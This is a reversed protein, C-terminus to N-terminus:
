SVKVSQSALDLIREQTMEAKQIEGTKYGEHMVIIRDSMGILEPMESSIMIITLGTETLQRMLRYIEQKAGVDIGRTPEDFILIKCQTALWKALVVKQQNGGSLNKVLQESSPAKIQLASMLKNVEAAAMKQNIWGAKAFRRLCSFVINSNVSLGLLAGHKKRDEPILGIGFRIAEEPSNIKVAKGFLEIRGGSIPDAGFLARATETRGAGVLGGLGLIEGQRLDFSMSKVYDNKLDCVRLITQGIPLKRPPFTSSLERGVMQRILEERNTESTQFTTIFQGDRMVTVRDSITFIEDLRHSIYLITVGKEKLRRIITFMSEIEPGTLPASPEDMVLLKVDRSISKAIEVIQQYAVTLDKVRASPDISVGLSDMIEAAQRNMTQRDIFIGNKLERGFFINEAVTLWPVLNFEQYVAGIGISLSEIPNMKQIIKGDYQIQGSTPEICGTIIKILTSKGAGNEGVIAHVEGRRVSISMCDLAVVGPYLKTLGNIELINEQDTIYTDSM